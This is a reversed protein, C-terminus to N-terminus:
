NAPSSPNAGVVYGNGGVTVAIDQTTGNFTVQYIPRTGQYGVRTGATIATMVADPIQNESIGVNEFDTQHDEVIHQLGSKANETELWVIM